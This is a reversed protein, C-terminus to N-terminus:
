PPTCGTADSAPDALVLARRATLGQASHGTLAYGHQLVSEGRHTRGLLVDAGLDVTTGRVEFTVRGCRDVSRVTGRDSNALNHSPLNQRVILM